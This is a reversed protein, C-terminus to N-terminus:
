CLIVNFHKRCNAGYRSSYIALLHISPDIRLHGLDHLTGKGFKRRYALRGGRPHPSYDYNCDAPM